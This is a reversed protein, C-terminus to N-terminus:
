LECNFKDLTGNIQKSAHGCVIPGVNVHPGRACNMQTGRVNLELPNDLTHLRLKQSLLHRMDAVGSQM